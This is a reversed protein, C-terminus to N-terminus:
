LFNFNNTINKKTWKFFVEAIVKLLVWEENISNNPILLNGKIILNVAYRNLKICNIVLIRVIKICIFLIQILNLNLIKLKIKNIILVIDLNLNKLIEFSNVWFSLNIM